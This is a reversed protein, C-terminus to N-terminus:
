RRARQFATSGPVLEMRRDARRTNLVRVAVSRGAGLELSCGVRAARDPLATWALADVPPVPYPVPNIGTSLDIWDSRDGGFRAVAADVGGGHDRGATM